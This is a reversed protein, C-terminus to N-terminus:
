HQIPFYHSNTRLDVCFVYICSHPCFTSNSFILSTTCITVVLSRSILGCVEAQRVYIKCSGWCEDWEYHMVKFTLGILYIARWWCIYEFKVSLRPKDCKHVFGLCLTANYNGTIMWKAVWFIATTDSSRTADRRAAGRRRWLNGGCMAYTRPCARAAILSYPQQSGVNVATNKSLKNWLHVGFSDKIEDMVQQCKSEDFFLQWNTYPIPFFERHPLVRFGGCRETSLQAVQLCVIVNLCSASPPLLRCIDSFHLTHSVLM